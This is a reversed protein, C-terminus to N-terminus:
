NQTVCWKTCVWNRMTSHFLSLTKGVRLNTALTSCLLCASGWATMLRCLWSLSTTWGSPPAREQLCVAWVWLSYTRARHVRRWCSPRSAPAWHTMTSSVLRLFLPPHSVQNELRPMSQILPRGNVKGCMKPRRSVKQKEQVEAVIQTQGIKASFHCVAAEGPLPFVFVAELPKDEKNEYLLTSVVTAVHDRVEVEVEVSKLPVSLFLFM